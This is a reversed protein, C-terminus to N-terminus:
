AANQGGGQPILNGREVERMVQEDDMAQTRVFENVNKAGMERAIHKFIRTVSFQQHLEPTQAIIKFLNTWAESSQSGPVSGDRVRVDYDIDLDKPHVKMKGREISRGYEKRLVEEWDGTIDAYMEETMLQQTHSAFMYGIDQIGQMGMVRAMRNLRSVASSRTGQFESATLREPGGQRLAGMMSEDAGSVHNMFNVLVSAEEINQRTIDQVGLQQVAEKVGRGWAPRRMRILKGPEPDRLDNMNILYPDVVLMDNVAKRVNAIHSNFLWDVVHQLGYISEMRSIPLPSYGDFDPSVAGVPYMGHNLNLPKARVIVEDAGLSFLWKEPYESDGLGWDSPVLNIYMHIVDVPSTISESLEQDETTAIERASENKHTIATEGDIMHRLYKVNFYDQDDRESELLNVLSTEEIWGFFEGDQISQVGVRPDPLSLYPDINNLSNGEFLIQQESIEEPQRGILRGLQSFRGQTRQVRKTGWRVEWDPAAYGVGYALADRFFTHLALPVKTKMCHRQVAKELLTAGITDEPARGDYGFIPEQLFATLLYTLLTEHIAFSYPFVISTPKNPNQSKVEREEEDPSIYTTLIRDIERWSDFRNSVVEHSQRARELIESKLREHLKNGPQLDLEDPYEYDYNARRLNEQSRSLGDPNLIYPM